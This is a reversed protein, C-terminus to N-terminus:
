GCKKAIMDGVTDGLSPYRIVTDMPVTVAAPHLDASYTRAMLTQMFEGVTYDTGAGGHSGGSLTCTRNSAQDPPTAFAPAAMAMLVLVLVALMVIRKM